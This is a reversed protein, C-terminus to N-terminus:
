GQVLEIAPKGDPYYITKLIKVGGGFDAPRGVFLIDSGKEEKSWDLFKFEYKGINQYSWNNFDIGKSGGQKLYKVPNYKTYFLYFIYPQELKGSFIIKKYKPALIQAEGIAQKYGYQWYPAFERPMQNFYMDLYYVFNVSFLLCVVTFLLKRAIITTRGDNQSTWFRKILVMIGIASFIELPVVMFFSRVAHPTQNTPADAVPAMLFWLFVVWKGKSNDKFLQYIGILVFPLELIYLLGMDPAHHREVGDGSIFLWKPTFNWLYGELFRSVYTLRRNHIFNSLPLGFKEDQEIQRVNQALLGTQDTYISVGGLRERGSPSLLILGAPLSLLFGMLLAAIFTKKNIFLERKFLIFLGLVFLPTFVRASHYAYLSLGYFVASVVLFWPKKFSRFFFVAGWVLLFLASNVEFGVRSFQINWPSVALLFATLLSCYVTFLRINLHKRLAECLFFVGLVTLTGFVVSPFRVAFVNLGFIAVSPIAAYAYFAPKYDNFSRLSLPLFYGFEDRGTKLISYANYGIAAEDWDPSPPVKTVNYFRLAFALVITLFLAIIRKNM